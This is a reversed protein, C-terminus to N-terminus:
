NRADKGHKVHKTSGKLIHKNAGQAKVKKNTQMRQM